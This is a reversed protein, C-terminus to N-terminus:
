YNKLKKRTDFDYCTEILDFEIKDHLESKNKIKNLYINM